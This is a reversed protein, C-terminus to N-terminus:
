FISQSYFDCQQKVLKKFFFILFFTKKKKKEINVNEHTLAGHIHSRSLLIITIMFM